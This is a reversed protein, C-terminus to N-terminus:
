SQGGIFTGAAVDMHDSEVPPGSRLTTWSPPDSAPFSDDLIADVDIGPDRRRM